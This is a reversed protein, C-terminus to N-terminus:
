NKAWGWTKIYELLQEKNMEKVKLWEKNNQETFKNVGSNLSPPHNIHWCNGGTRDFQYGLTKVRHFRDVDDPCWSQLNENELGCKWYDARNLFCAGGVSGTAFSEREIIIGDQIYSREIDVFNGSYPFVLTSGERLL